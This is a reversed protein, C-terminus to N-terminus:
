STLASSAVRGTRAAVTDSGCDAAPCRCARRARSSALDIRRIVALAATDIEAVENSGRLATYLRTGDPTIALATAGSLGTIAGTLTGRTDAVVIRDNASVFVKGGGVAVDGSKTYIDLSVGLDTTSDAASVAPALATLLGATM